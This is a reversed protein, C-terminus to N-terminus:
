FRLFGLKLKPVTGRYSSHSIFRLCLCMELLFQVCLSELFWRVLISGSAPFSHAGAVIWTIVREILDYNLADPNMLCLNKRTQKSYDTSFLYHLTYILMASITVTFKSFCDWAITSSFTIFMLANNCLCALICSLLYQLEGPIRITVTQMNLICSAYWTVMVNCWNGHKEGQEHFIVPWSKFM